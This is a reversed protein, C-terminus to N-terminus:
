RRRERRCRARCSLTAIRDYRIDACNLGRPLIIEPRCVAIHRKGRVDGNQRPIEALYKNSETM